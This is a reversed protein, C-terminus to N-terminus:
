KLERDNLGAIKLLHNALGSKLAGAGHIPVSIRNPQGAKGYIHHSGSVRLLHWGHGELIRALERGSLAM